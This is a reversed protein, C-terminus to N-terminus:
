GEDSAEYSARSLTMGGIVPVASAEPGADHGVEESHLSASGLWSRRLRRARYLPTIGAAGAVQLALNQARSLKAAAALESLGIQAAILSADASLSARATTSSAILITTKAATVTEVIVALDRDWTGADWRAVLAEILAPTVVLTHLKCDIASFFIGDAKSFSIDLDGRGAVGTDAKINLEITVAGRSTYALPGLDGAGTPIDRVGYDQLTGVREFGSRRVYGVDGLSVASSPLWTALYDLNEEIEASYNLWAGGM